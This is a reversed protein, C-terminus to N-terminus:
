HKPRSKAIRAKVANTARAKRQKPTLKAAAAKGGLPAIRRLHELLTDTMIERNKSLSALLSKKSEALHSESNRHMTRELELSNRPPRPWLFCLHKETDARIESQRPVLWRRRPLANYQGHLFYEDRDQLARAAM